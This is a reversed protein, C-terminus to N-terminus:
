IHAYFTEMGRLKFKGRAIFQENNMLKGECEYYGINSPNAQNIHLDFMNLVRTNYPLKGNIFSWWAHSDSYCIFKGSQGSYLRLVRPTIRNPDVFKMM